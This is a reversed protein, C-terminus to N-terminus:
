SSPSSLQFNDIFFRPRQGTEQMGCLMKGARRKNKQVPGQDQYGCIVFHFIESQSGVLGLRLVELRNKLDTLIPLLAAVAENRRQQRNSNIGFSDPLLGAVSFWM